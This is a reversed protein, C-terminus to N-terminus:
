STPTSNQALVGFYRMVYRSNADVATPASTLLVNIQVNQSGGFLVFPQMPFMADDAFNNQDEPSAAGFGATQQTQNSVWHRQLGWGYMYQYNNVMIKMQGNYLARMQIANAFVFQNPYSYLRFTADAVGTPLCIYLGIMTPVFTDQMRLRIETNFILGGAGPQNDMIQFTYSNQNAVLPQELRLESQTLKFENIVDRGPFAQQFVAVAHNFDERAAISHM